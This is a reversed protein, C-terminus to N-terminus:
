NSNENILTELHNAKNFNEVKIRISTVGDIALVEKKINNALSYAMPCIPSSPRFVLSVSGDSNASIDHVLDMRGIDLRTEPDIIKSLADRVRVLIEETDM